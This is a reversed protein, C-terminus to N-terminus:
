IAEAATLADALLETVLTVHREEGRQVAVATAKIIYLFLQAVRQNSVLTGYNLRARAAAGPEVDESTVCLLANVDPWIQDALEENDALAALGLAPPITLTPLVRKQGASFSKRRGLSKYHTVGKNFLHKVIDRMKQTDELPSYFVPSREIHYKAIFADLQARLEQPASFPPVNARKKTFPWM